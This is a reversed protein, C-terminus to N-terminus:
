QTGAWAKGCGTFPQPGDLARNAYRCLWSAGAHGRLDLAPVGGQEVEGKQLGSAGRGQAPAGPLEAFKQCMELSAV